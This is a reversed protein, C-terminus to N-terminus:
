LMVATGIRLQVNCTNSIFVYPTIVAESSATIRNRKRQLWEGNRVQTETSTDHHSSGMVGFLVITILHNTERDTGM